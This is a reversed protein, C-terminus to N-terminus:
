SEQFTRRVQSSVWMDALLHRREVIRVAHIFEASNQESLSTGLRRKTM